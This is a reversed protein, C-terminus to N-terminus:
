VFSRGEEKSEGTMVTCLKREAQLREELGCFWKDLLWHVDKNLYCLPMEAKINQDLLDLVPDKPGWSQWNASALDGM